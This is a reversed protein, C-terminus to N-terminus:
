GARTRQEAFELFFILHFINEYSIEAESSGFAGNARHEFLVARNIPHVDNRVPFGSLGSAKSEYFHAIVTLSFLGNGSEVATVQVAPRQIDIFGLGFFIATATSVAAVAAPLPLVIAPSRTSLLSALRWLRWTERERCFTLSESGSM